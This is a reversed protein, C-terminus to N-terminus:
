TSFDVEDDDPQAYLPRQSLDSYKDSKSLFAEVAVVQEKPILLIEYGLTKILEEFM